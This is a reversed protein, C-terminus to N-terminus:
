FNRFKRNVSIKGEILRDACLFDKLFIAAFVSTPLIWNKKEVHIKKKELFSLTKIVDELDIREVGLKLNDIQSSKM